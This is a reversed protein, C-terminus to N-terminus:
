AYYLTEPLEEHIAFNDCLFDTNKPTTEFVNTKLIASIRIDNVMRIILYDETPEIEELGEGEYFQVTHKAVFYNMALYEEKM